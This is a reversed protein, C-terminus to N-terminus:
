TEEVLTRILELTVILKLSGTPAVALANVNTQPDATLKEALAKDALENWNVGFEGRGFLVAHVTVTTPLWIVSVSVLSGGSVM